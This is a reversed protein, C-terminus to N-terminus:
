RNGQDFAELIGVGAPDPGSHLMIRYLGPDLNILIAAELANSPARGTAQIAAANGASGWDNNSARLTNDQFLGLRPNALRPLPSNVSPGRGRILVRKRTNGSIRLTAQVSRLGTGIRARMNVDILRPVAGPNQEFLELSAIGVRNLRDNLVVRYLGPALNGLIAAELDNVPARNTAEIDDANPANRWDNNARFITPDNGRFLRLRPDPLRTGNVNLSPGRGRILIPKGAGATIRFVRQIARAGPGAEARRATNVLRSPATPAVDINKVIQGDQKDDLSFQATQPQIDNGTVTVVIDGPIVLGTDDTTIAVVFFEGNFITAASGDAVPTNTATLTRHQDSSISVNAGVIGAQNANSRVLGTLVTFGSDDSPNDSLFVSVGPSQAVIREAADLALIRTFVSQCTNDELQGLDRIAVQTTESEAEPEIPTEFLPDRAFRLRYSKVAPDISRTWRLVAARVDVPDDVEPDFAPSTLRPVAPYDVRSFSAYTPANLGQFAQRDCGADPFPLPNRVDPFRTFEGLFAGSQGDYRVVSHSSRCTVYLHGDHPGFALGVPDNCGDEFPKAFVDLFAGGTGNYRLIHDSGSSTVYLNGDPGFVLDAPGGDSDLGGSGARVFAGLETGQQLGYRRVAAFTGFHILVFADGSPGITVGRPVPVNGKPTVTSFSNRLAGTDADYHQILGFDPQTAVLHKGDPSLAVGEFGAAGGQDAIRDDGFLGGTAMSFNLIAARTDPNCQPCRYAVFFEGATSAALGRPRDVPSTLTNFATGIGPDPTEIVGRFVGDRGGFRLVSAGPGGGANSILLQLETDSPQALAGPGVGWLACIASLMRISPSRSKTM